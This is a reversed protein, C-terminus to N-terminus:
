EEAVKIIRGELSPAIVPSHAKIYEVVVDFDMLGTDYRKEAMIIDYYGDGGSALYGNVAVKYIKSMDLEQGNVTVNIVKDGKKRKLDYAMKLGSVQLIGYKSNKLAWGINHELINMIKAGSIEIIALNFGVIELRDMIPLIDYVDGITIEGQKLDAQLGGVLAIDAKTKERLIDAIWDGLASEKDKSRRFPTKVYGIVEKKKKKVAEISKQVITQIKFDPKIDRVWLERWTPKYKLVKRQKDFTVDIKYFATGQSYSEVIITKNKPVVYFPWLYIRRGDRDNGGIIINIGNVEYTIRKDEALGLNSLFIIINGRIKKLLSVYKRTTLIPDLIKLGKINELFVMPTTIGIIGIKIGKYEKVIYPTAYDVIEGTYEKVLNASLFPFKAMKASDRLNEEGFALDKPGIAMADYGLENMIEIISSGKLLYGEAPGAFFNGSDVFVFGRNRIIALRRERKIVAGLYASGGMLHVGKVDPGTYEHPAIFGQLDNTYTITVTRKERISLLYFFVTVVIVMAVILSIKKLRGAM